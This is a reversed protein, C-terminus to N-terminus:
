GGGRMQKLLDDLKTKEGDLASVEVKETFLSYRKGLLEAAKLRDKAGPQKKMVRAESCGDGVGETVIVQETAEGRLVTTLYEMVEQVTAVRESELEKLREEIYKKVDVNALLRSGASKAVGDKKVTPYATRYARTANLDVLYEDAFKKQKETM